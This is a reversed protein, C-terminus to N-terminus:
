RYSAWRGEQVAELDEAAVSDIHDLERPWQHHSEPDRSQREASSLRRARAPKKETEKECVISVTAPTESVYSQGPSPGELLPFLRFMGDGEPWMTWLGAARGTQTVVFMSRNGTDGAEADFVSLPVSTYLKGSKRTPPIFGPKSASPDGGGEGDDGDEGDGSSSDDGGSDGDDNGSTMMSSDDNEDGSGDSDGPGGDKESGLAVRKSGSGGDEGDSRGRKKAACGLPQTSYYHVEGVFALHLTVVTSEDPDGVSDDWSKVEM